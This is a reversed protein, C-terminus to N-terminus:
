LDNSRYIYKEQCKASNEVVLVEIAGKQLENEYRLNTKEKPNM